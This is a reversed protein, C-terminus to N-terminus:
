HLNGNEIKFPIGRALNRKLEIKAIELDFIAENYGRNYGDEEKEGIKTTPQLPLKLSELLLYIKDDETM